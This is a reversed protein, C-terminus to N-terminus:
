AHNGERLPQSISHDPVRDPDAAVGSRAIAREDTGLYSAIVRPDNRVDAPSGQAIVRGTELCYVRDSIGMILPMDHEIVLMSAALERRIELLLPGFAETERQAVGATPEDLCLVRAGLALLGALEVIRRTGTSLDGTYHEAYRGLGLFSMIETAESRKAREARTARPLMIATAILGTRGHAELAVQITEQVTLEPFLRAAQFTRGLGLRARRESSLRTVRQGLLDVTGDSPVYGGIANMLTSKGAGNAGILGVIEEGGVRVTAGDVAAVGGFHVRIDTAILADGEPAVIGARRPAAVVSDPRQDARPPARREAWTIAGDRLRYAIGVLGTPFYLLLLLLGAGSVLLNVIQNSPAFAPLGIVWLAGIVPGATAGLGGIVVIAVLVLSDDILFFRETFPVAQVAGAILAGGLGAIGGALAFAQLKMRTPAVTYASATDPNDRVAIMSRGVGSRRLRSVVWLVGALIVLLVYYYSRESRLDLGLFRGRTFAVATDAHGNLIPRRYFYQQAALAFAFTTVALMLGRVRLSGIGILTALASTCLAAIVVSVWFPEGAFTTKILRAHHWGVDLSIGHTFAAALLAGMGAFAMQGLSIQGAWGTLVTLSTACVAYGLILAYLLHRSPETIILPLAIGVVALVMWGARDLARIYWLHKLREPVPRPKPAFSFPSGTEARERSQFWVAVLVAILILFDILGVQDLYNFGVVAETIGIVVAAALTRPFSRMGGIVAAALARVLTDPGLTTVNAAQGAQGAILVLSVTALLGAISWVMTSVLKPNVGSYRALEPNDAAADVTKGILTRGLFWALALVAVPTVALISLQPGAVQVGALHWTRGLAVPFRTSSLGQANIKPYAVAATLAIQGIGITAVLLIVRPANFLRRIVGLEVAAAFLTGVGLGIVLALWFPVHYRVVIVSFLAAGVLGMNGVAFNIVRTARYILVIGVAVLASALGNIAGNFVIQKTIFTSALIM